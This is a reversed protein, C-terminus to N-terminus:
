TGSPMPTSCSARGRRDHVNERICTLVDQLPRREPAHYLVDNTALIPVGTARPWGTSGSSGRLPRRRSLLAPPWGSTRLSTAASRLRPLEAEFADSRDGPWAILRHGEAHDAVDDLQSRVRREQRAAQGPTLLRRCGAMARATSASLRAPEAHRRHLGAPLRDAPM